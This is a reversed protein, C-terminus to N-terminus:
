GLVFPPTVPVYLPMGDEYNPSAAIMKPERSRVVDYSFTCEPACWCLWYRGGNLTLNTPFSYNGIYWEPYNQAMTEALEVYSYM